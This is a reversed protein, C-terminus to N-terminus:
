LDAGEAVEVVRASPNRVVDIRSWLEKLRGHMAEAEGATDFELDIFVYSPDDAARFIRYRRVGSQARDLPDSDFADKWADFDPTGHEVRLVHM